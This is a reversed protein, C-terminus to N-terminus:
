AGGLTFAQLVNFGAGVHLEHLVPGGAGRRCVGALGEVVYASASTCLSWPCSARHRASTSSSAAGTGPSLPLCPTQVSATAEGGVLRCTAM